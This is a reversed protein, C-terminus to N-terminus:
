IKEKLHWGCVHEEWQTNVGRVATMANNECGDVFCMNLGNQQLLKHCDHWNNGQYFSYDFTESSSSNSFITVDYFGLSNNITNNLYFTTENARTMQMETIITNGVSDLTTIKPYGPYPNYVKAKLKSSENKAFFSKPKDAFDYTKFWLYSRHDGVNPTSLRGNISALYTLKEDTSKGSLSLFNNM